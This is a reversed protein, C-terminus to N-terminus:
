KKAGWGGWLGKVLGTLGAVGAAAKKSEIKDDLSPFDVHNLALDFFLPKCPVSTMPPPVQAVQPSSSTLSPDEIYEDLRHILLKGEKTTAAKTTTTPAGLATQAALIAQAHATFKKSDISAKIRELETLASPQLKGGAKAEEVYNLAQQYLVLAEAWKEVKLFSEAVYYCRHARHAIVQGEVTSRLDLDDELGPLNPLEKLNQIIIEHLRVLDQLKPAKKGEEVQVEGSVIKQYTHVLALNRLTTLNLRHYSLYTHLFHLPSVPGESSQQRPKFSVDNKLDDRVLQIADKCEMLLRDLLRVRESADATRDLEEHILGESVLFLRVKEHRVALTRGKWTVESLTSAQRERASALLNDLKDGLAENGRMALLTDTASRDGLHHRCFRLKVEVEQIKASYVDREEESVAGQLKSYIALAKNFYEVPRDWKGIWEALEFLVTGQLWASYGQVELQTRADCQESEEVLREFAAVYSAAKRLKNRMSFKKRTDQSSEEKLQMAYAWYREVTMLPIYLFRDDKLVDPTVIKKRFNKRDGQIFDLNKRLRRIRRSCYQRYLQYDSHRLGHALQAERVVPCVKLTYLMRKGEDHGPEAPSTLDPAPTVEGDTVVIDVTM